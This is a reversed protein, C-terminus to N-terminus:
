EDSLGRGSQFREWGLVALTTVAVVVVVYVVFHRVYESEGTLSGEFAIMFGAILSVIVVFAGIGRASDVGNVIRDMCGAHM